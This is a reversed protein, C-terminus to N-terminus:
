AKPEQIKRGIVRRDCQSVAGYSKTKLKKDQMWFYTAQSTEPIM